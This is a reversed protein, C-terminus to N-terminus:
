REHLEDRTWTMNGHTGSDLGRELIALQRDRAAAYESSQEYGVEDEIIKALMASLSVGRQAALRRAQQVLDKPLRVTVRQTEM